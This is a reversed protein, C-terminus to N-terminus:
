GGLWVGTKADPDTAARALCSNRGAVSAPTDIGRRESGRHVILLLVPQSHEREVRALLAGHASTLASAQERRTSAVAGTGSRRSSTTEPMRMAAKRRRGNQALLLGVGAAAVATIAARRDVLPPREVVINGVVAAQGM